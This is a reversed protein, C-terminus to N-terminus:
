YGCICIAFAFIFTRRTRTRIFVFHSVIFDSSPSPSPHTIHHLSTSKTIFLGDSLHYSHSMYILADISEVDVGTERNRWVKLASSGPKNRHDDTRIPRCKGAKLVTGSLPMTERFGRFDRLKM